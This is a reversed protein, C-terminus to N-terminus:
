VAGQEYAAPAVHRSPGRAAPVAPARRPVVPVGLRGLAPDVGAAAGVVRLRAVAAPPAVRKVLHAPDARARSHLGASCCAVSAPTALISPVKSRQPYRLLSLRSLQIFLCTLMQKDPSPESRSLLICALVVKLTPM